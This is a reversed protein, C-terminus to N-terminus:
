CRVQPMNTDPSIMRLRQAAADLDRSASKTRSPSRAVEADAAYSPSISWTMRTPGSPLTGPMELSTRTLNRSGTYRPSPMVSAMRHSAVPGAPPRKGASSPSMLTSTASGSRVLSANM